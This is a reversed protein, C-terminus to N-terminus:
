LRVRGAKVRAGFLTAVIEERRNWLFRRGEPEGLYHICSQPDLHSAELLTILAWREIATTDRDLVRFHAGAVFTDDGFRRALWIRMAQSHAEVHPTDSAEAERAPKGLTLRLCREHDSVRVVLDPAALRGLRLFQKQLAVTRASVEDLLENWPVPPGYDHIELPQPALPPQRPNVTATAPTEFVVEDGIRPVVYRDDRTALADLDEFSLMSSNQDASEKTRYYHNSAFPFVRAPTLADVTRELVEVLQRKRLDDDVVDFLKGAHNYNTFLLDIPGIQRRISQIAKAPLNCDNYNLLSWSDSVVHLMNDIGATPYRYCTTEGNLDFAEREGFPRVDRFGLTALREVMSFNASVNALVVMDPNLDALRALSPAHLHDSHWHSIWLHTARAAVAFADPNDYRLGWGGSFATGSLWPDFLLRIEGLEVLLSAHNLYHIRVSSM